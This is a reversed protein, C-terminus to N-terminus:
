INDEVYAIDLLNNNSLTRNELLEMQSIDQKGRIGKLRCEEMLSRTVDTFVQPYSTNRSDIKIM